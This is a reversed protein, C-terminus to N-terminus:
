NTLIKNVLDLCQKDVHSRNFVYSLKVNDPFYDHQHENFWSNTLMSVDLFKLLGPYLDFDPNIRTSLNPHWDIDLHQCVIESTIEPRGSVTTWSWPLHKHKLILNIDALESASNWASPSFRYSFEMLFDENMDSFRLDIEQPLQDMIQRVFSTSYHRYSRHDVIGNPFLDQNSLLDDESLSPNLIVHRWSWPDNSHQRLYDITLIARQSLEHYQWPWDPFADIISTPVDAGSGTLNTKLTGFMNITKFMIETWPVNPCSRIIEPTLESWSVPNNDKDFQPHNVRQVVPLKDIQLRLLESAPWSWTPHAEMFEVTIKAGNRDTKFLTPLDWPLDPHQALYDEDVIPSRDTVISWNWNIEPHKILETPPILPCILDHYKALDVPKSDDTMIRAKARLTFHEENLWENARYRVAKQHEPYKRYFNDLSLLTRRKLYAPLRTRLMKAAPISLYSIKNRALDVLEIISFYQLIEEFMEPPLTDM